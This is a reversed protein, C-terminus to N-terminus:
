LTRRPLTSPGLVRRLQRLLSAPKHLDAWTWRVVTWGLGRLLDERRKEAIVVDSASQGPRLLSTYKIKGDFEGLVRQQEWCFDSRGILQGFEDRVEFQLTPMPIAERFFVLRSCSEGVSESRGDAMEILRRVRPNGPQRGSASVVEDLDTVSAGRALVADVIPLARFPDLVRGLDVATRALSTVELGDISTIERESLPSRHLHVYRRVRGSGQDPRTVHVRALRDAWYPLAHVVGASEHSIVGPMTLQAVTARILRLHEMAPGPSAPESAAYAGRRIRDLDGQRTLRRLEAGDYGEAALDRTLRVREM